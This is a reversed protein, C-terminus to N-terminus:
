QFEDFRHTGLDTGVRLRNRGPAPESEPGTEVQDDTGCRNRTQLHFTTRTIVDMYEKLTM